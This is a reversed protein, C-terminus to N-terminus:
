WMRYSAVWINGSLSSPLWEFIQRDTLQNEWSGWQQLVLGESASGGEGSGLFLGSEEGDLEPEESGLLDWRRLVLM